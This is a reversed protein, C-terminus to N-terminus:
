DILRATEVAAAAVQRFVPELDANAPTCFYYDGDKNENSGCGGPVDDNSPQTAAAALNTTGPRGSFPPVSDTCRTSDVGYAITFITQGEAKALTAKDNFYKCPQRTSPQNAQGDTMFIIVDPVDSRGQLRLMDRAADLPDGLNTHFGSPSGGDSRAQVISSDARQLCRIQQVLPNSTDLTGDARKYSNNLPVAQWDAYNSNPYLQYTPPSTRRDGYAICKNGPQGYPLSAMGVWQQTPDYFDLVALAANELNAIDSTSMSGTRDLVMVVDVPSTAAGCQGKCSAANVAGTSGSDVGIAPAFYYPISTSTTLRITNCKDGAYPDCAHTSRGNRTTWGSSWTGASPGCVFPVDSADPQGNGDRDGVICQFRITLGASALQPANAIAVTRAIGSATNAQPTGQVPLDQAGALAGFDVANQLVQREHYLRSIDIAFAVAAFLVLIVLASLVAIAGREEHLRHM